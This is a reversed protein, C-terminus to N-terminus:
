GKGLGIMSAVTCQGREGEKWVIGDSNYLPGLGTGNRVAADSTTASVGVFAGNWGRRERERVCERKKRVVLKM